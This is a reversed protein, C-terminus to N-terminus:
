SPLAPGSPSRKRAVVLYQMTLPDRVVGFTLRDIRATMCDPYLRFRSVTREITFGAQILLQEASGRVFFRLHTRDLIGETRYDWRGRIALDRLVTWHRINPLSIVILGNPRLKEGLQRAVAWPDVLHELVDLALVVDFLPLSASISAIDARHYRDIFPALEADPESFADVGVVSTARGQRKLLALTAGNGCGIELVDGLAGAPLLGIADIRANGFYREAKEEYLNM